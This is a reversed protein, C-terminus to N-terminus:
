KIRKLYWKNDKVVISWSDLDNLLRKRKIFNYWKEFCNDFEQQLNNM